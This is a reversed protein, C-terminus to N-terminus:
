KNPAAPQGRVAALEVLGGCVAGGTIREVDAIALIQRYL